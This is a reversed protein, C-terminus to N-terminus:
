NVYKRLNVMVWHKKFTKARKLFPTRISTCCSFDPTCENTLINHTNIGIVWLILQCNISTVRTIRNAKKIAIIMFRNFKEM